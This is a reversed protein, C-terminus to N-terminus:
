SAALALYVSHKVDLGEGAADGGAGISELLHVVLGAIGHERREVEAELDRGGHRLQHKDGAKNLDVAAMSSAYKNAAVARQVGALLAQQAHTPNANFAVRPHTYKYVLKQQNTPSQLGASWNNTMVTPDVTSTPTIPM